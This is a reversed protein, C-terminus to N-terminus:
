LRQQEPPSATCVFGYVAREGHGKWGILGRSVVYLIQAYTIVALTQGSECSQVLPQACRHEFESKVGSSGCKRRWTYVPPSSLSFSRREIMCSFSYLLLTTSYSLYINHEGSKIIGTLSPAGVTPRCNVELQRGALTNYILQKSQLRGERAASIGRSRYVCVHAPRRRWCQATIGGKETM